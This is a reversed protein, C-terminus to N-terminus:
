RAGLNRWLIVDASKALRCHHVSARFGGNPATCLEFAQAHCEPCHAVAQADDTRGFTSPRGPRTM